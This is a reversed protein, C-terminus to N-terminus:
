QAHKRKNMLISSLTQTRGELVTVKQDMDDIRKKMDDLKPQIVKMLEIAVKKATTKM